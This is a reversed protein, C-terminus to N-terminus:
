FEVKLLRHEMPKGNSLKRPPPTLWFHHAGFGYVFFKDLETEEAIKKIAVRLGEENASLTIANTVRILTHPIEDAWNCVISEIEVKM